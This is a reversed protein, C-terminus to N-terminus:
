RERKTFECRDAVKYSLIENQQFMELAFSVIVKIEQESGAIHIPVMDEDQKAGKDLWAGKAAAHATWGGCKQIVIDLWRERVERPIPTRDNYAIPIMVCWVPKTGPEGLVIVYDPEELWCPKGDSGIAPRYRM